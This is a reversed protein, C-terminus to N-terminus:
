IGLVPLMVIAPAQESAIQEAISGVASALM